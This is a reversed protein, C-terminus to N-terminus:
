QGQVSKVHFPLTYTHTLSISHLAPCIIKRYSLIGIIEFSGISMFSWAGQDGRWENGSNTCFTSTLLSPHPFALISRTRDKTEASSACLLNYVAGECLTTIGKLSIRHVLQAKLVAIGQPNSLSM